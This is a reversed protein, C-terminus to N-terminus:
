FDLGRMTAVFPKVSTPDGYLENQRRAAFIARLVLAVFLEADDERTDESTHPIVSARLHALPQEIGMEEIQDATFHDRLNVNRHELVMHALEHILSHIFQAPHQDRNLFIFDHSAGSSWLGFVGAPFNVSKVIIPRGRQAELHRRFHEINFQAFDYGLADITAQLRREDHKLQRKV